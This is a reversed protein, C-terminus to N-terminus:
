GRKNYIIPCPNGYEEMTKVKLKGMGNNKVADEASCIVAHAWENADEYFDFDDGHGGGFGLGIMFDVNNKIAKNILFDVVDDPMLAVLLDCNKLSIQSTFERRILKLSSTDSEYTSLRPDYVVIEGSGIVSDIRKALRPLVGGGVEIVRKDRIQFNRKLLDFFGEYINLEKPLVGLEDYIERVDAPMFQGSYAYNLILEKEEETFTKPYMRLFNELLQKQNM